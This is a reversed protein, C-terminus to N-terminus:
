PNPEVITSDGLNSATDEILDHAELRSLLDSPLTDVGHLAGLFNGAISGTSDSDGSHNVALLLGSRVDLAVLACCLGIALAEEGVWGGGLTELAEPTVEGSRALTLADDIAALTEQHDDWTVLVAKAREVADLLPTGRVCEGIIHAVAGASLYGSPHGHTIAAARAGVEFWHDRLAAIPAVRMVGGCGKSWNQQDEPSGTGGAYLASLCTNGPARRSHLVEHELLESGVPRETSPDQTYLWALYATRISAVLDDIRDSDAQLLGEATFLTMQTDDTIAGIRGYVPEYDTLGAPGFTRRITHLSDFEIPAGLADGIAGALLSGVLRDHPTASV